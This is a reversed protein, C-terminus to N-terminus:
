PKWGPILKRMKDDFQESERRQAEFKWRGITGFILLLAFVLTMLGAIMGRHVMLLCIALIVLVAASAFFSLVTESTPPQDLPERVFWAVAGMLIAAIFLGIAKAESPKRMPIDYGKPGHVAPRREQTLENVLFRADLWDETQELCVQADLTIQGRKWMDLIIEEAFPGTTRGDQSLWYRNM